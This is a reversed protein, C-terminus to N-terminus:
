WGLQGGPHQLLANPDGADLQAQWDGAPARAPAGADAEPDWQLHELAEGAFAERAFAMPDATDSRAEPAGQAPIPTETM